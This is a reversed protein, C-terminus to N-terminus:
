KDNNEEGKVNEKDKQLKNSKYIKKLIFISIGVVMAIAVIISIYYLPSYIIIEEPDVVDAYVSNEILVINLLYIAFISFLINKIAKM